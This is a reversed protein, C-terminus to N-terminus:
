LLYESYKYNIKIDLKEAKSLFLSPFNIATPTASAEVAWMTLRTELCFDSDFFTLMIIQYDQMNKKNKKLSLYM